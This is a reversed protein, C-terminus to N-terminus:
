SSGGIVVPMRPRVYDHRYPFVVAQKTTLLTRSRHRRWFGKM